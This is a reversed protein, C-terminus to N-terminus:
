TARCRSPRGPTRDRAGAGLANSRGDHGVPRSLDCLDNRLVDYGPSSPDSWLGGTYTAMAGALLLVSAGTPILAAAVLPERPGSVLRTSM